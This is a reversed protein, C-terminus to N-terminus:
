LSQLLSVWSQLNAVVTCARLPFPMNPSGHKYAVAVVRVAAAEM